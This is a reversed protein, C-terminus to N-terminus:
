QLLIIFIKDESLFYWFDETDHTEPNITELVSHLNEKQLWQFDTKKAATRVISEQMVQKPDASWPELPCKIGVKKDVQAGPSFFHLWCKQSRKLSTMHQFRM